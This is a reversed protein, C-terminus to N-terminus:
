GIRDRRCSATRPEHHHGFEAAWLHWKGIYEVNYGARSLVHAMTTHDPNMRLENIIMGTTTPYRGTLLSARHSACVPMTSVANTFNVGSGALRDLNPTMARGAGSAGVHHHGLQDAFVYLLNPRGALAGAARAGGGALVAAAVSGVLFDRRNVREKKLSM